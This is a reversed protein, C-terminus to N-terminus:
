TIASGEDLRTAVQVFCFTFIVALTGLIEVKDHGNFIWVGILISSVFLLEKIWTKMKGWRRAIAM